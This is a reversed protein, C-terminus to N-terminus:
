IGLTFPLGPSLPLRLLNYFTEICDLPLAQAGACGEVSKLAM